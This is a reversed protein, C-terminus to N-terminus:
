DKEYLKKARRQQSRSENERRRYEPSNQKERMRIANTSNSNERCATMEKLKQGNILFHKVVHSRAIPGFEEVVCVAVAGEDPLFKEYM